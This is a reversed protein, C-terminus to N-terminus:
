PLLQGGRIAFTDLYVVFLTALAVPLAYAMIRRERRQALTEAHDHDKGTALYKKKWRKAGHLSVQILITAVTGVVVFMTSVVMTYLTLKLGMWVALAGMLKVDGGGGGGVMWLVFFTGFAVLFALAGDGLGPLGHFALQYVWGAFFFPVTLWNPIRRSRTDTYAAILTLSLVGVFFIIAQLSLGAM